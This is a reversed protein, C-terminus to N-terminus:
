LFVKIRNLFFSCADTEREFTHTNFRHGREGEFVIWQGNEFLICVAEEGYAGISYYSKPVRMKVLEERVSELDFLKEM